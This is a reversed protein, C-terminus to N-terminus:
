LLTRILFLPSSSDRGLSEDPSALPAGSIFFQLYGSRRSGRAMSEGDTELANRMAISDAEPLFSPLCQRGSPLVILERAGAM